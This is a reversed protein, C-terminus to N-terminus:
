HVETERRSTALDPSVVLEVIPGMSKELVDLEVQHPNVPKENANLDNSRSNLHCQESIATSSSRASNDQNPQVTTVTEQNLNVDGNRVARLAALIAEETIDEDTVDDTVDDTMNDTVDASVDSDCDENESDYEDTVSSERPPAQNGADSLDSESVAQRRRIVDALMPQRPDNMVKLMVDLDPRGLETGEQERRSTAIHKMNVSSLVM